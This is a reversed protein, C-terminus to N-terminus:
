TKGDLLHKNYSNQLSVDLNMIDALLQPREIHWNLDTGSLAADIDGLELRLVIPIFNLPIYKTQNLFSSMLQCLVVRSEGPAIQQGAGPGTLKATTASNGLGQSLMNRLEVPDSPFSFM